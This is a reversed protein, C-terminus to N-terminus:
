LYVWSDLTDGGHWFCPGLYTVALLIHVAYFSEYFRNRIQPLSLICLGFLVALSTSRVVPREDTDREQLGHMKM